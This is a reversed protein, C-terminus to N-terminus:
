ADIEPNPSRGRRVFYTGLLALLVCPAWKGIQYGFYFGAGEGSEPDAVFVTVLALMMAFSQIVLGIVRLM